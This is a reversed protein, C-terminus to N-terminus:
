SGPNENQEEVAKILTESSLFTPIAVREDTYAETGQAVVMFCPYSVEDITKDGYQTAWGYHERFAELYKAAEEKNNVRYLNPLLKM